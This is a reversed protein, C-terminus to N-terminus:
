RVAIPYSDCVPRAPYPRACSAALSNLRQLRTATKNKGAMGTAAKGARTEPPAHRPHNKGGDVCHHSHAVPFRSDPLLTRFKAHYDITNGHLIVSKHDIMLVNHRYFTHIKVTQSAGTTAVTQSRMAETYPNIQTKGPPPPQSRINIITIKM